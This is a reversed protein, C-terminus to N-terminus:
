DKPFVSRNCNRRYIWYAIAGAILAILWVIMRPTVFIPYSKHPPLGLRDGPPWLIVSPAGQLNQEPVFGFERSDASMAHNDGLVLYNKEPIKLGFTRITEADKPPGYDKFPRYPKRRGNERSLFSVLVPDDKQYIPAGLLFLDGDRFYAYRNPQHQQNKTRPSFATHLEIGLNYLKQVNESDRRYLPHSTPLESLVGGWHVKYGKGYYFEYMGDPVESFRPSSSSFRSGDVSYRFARGDKVVFRATYLNDMLANIHREQLPIVSTETTMMLSVQPSGPQNQPLSPSHRLVLYLIGEEVNDLSQDTYREVESRTMVRAMAYNGIGWLDSLSRVESSNESFNQEKKWDSGDFVEGKLEGFPSFSLRAVPQHMQLFEISDSRSKVNGEFKMIPIHELKQMWSPDILDRIPKGEADIGYVKGGYFYLTDGPKGILRKIYRKTYPILGFYSASTDPLPVGDGSWIIIGGRQILDPDFYFHDTKLPVNIGFATKTVTLRDKERFTPRMSGTPIEYLEFWMSRVFIAIVLAFALAVTLESISHFLSKKFHEDSFEEVQRALEDARDRDGELVAKDLARLKLEISSLRDPSLNKGQKRFLSYVQRLIHRSKRVSYRKSKFFAM